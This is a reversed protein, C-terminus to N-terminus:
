GNDPYMGLWPTGASTEDGGSTVEKKGTTKELQDGRLGLSTLEVGFLM